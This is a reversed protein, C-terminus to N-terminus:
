ADDGVEADLAGAGDELFREGPLQADMEGDESREEGARGEPRQGVEPDAVEGHQDRASGQGRQGREVAPDSQGGFGETLRGVCREMCRRLTHTGCHAMPRFWACERPAATMPRREIMADKSTKEAADARASKM